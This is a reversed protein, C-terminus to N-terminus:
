QPQMQVMQMQMQQQQMQMQQQQQMQMQQQQVIQGQQPQAVTVTEVTKVVVVQQQPVQQPQQGQSTVEYATSVRTAKKPKLCFFGAAIMGLIGFVFLTSGGSSLGPALDRFYVMVSLGLEAEDGAKGVVEVRYHPLYIEKGPSCSTLTFPWSQVSGWIGM